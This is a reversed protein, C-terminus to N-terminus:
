QEGKLEFFIQEDTPIVRGTGTISATLAFSAATRFNDIREKIQFIKTEIKNVNDTEAQLIPSINVLYQLRGELEAIDEEMEKARAVAFEPPMIGSRTKEQNNTAEEGLQTIDAIIADANASPTQILGAAYNSVLKGAIPIAEILTGFKVQASTGKQFENISIQRLGAERVTEDSLPADFGQPTKNLLNSIASAVPGAIPVNEIFEGEVGSRSLEKRRPTVEEFAGAQELQGGVQQKEAQVETVTRTPSPEREPEDALIRGAERSLINEKSALKERRGVFELGEALQEEQQPTRKIKKRRKEEETLVM